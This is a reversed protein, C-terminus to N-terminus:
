SRHRRRLWRRPQPQVTTQHAAVACVGSWADKASSRLTALYTVAWTGRGIIAQAAFDTTEGSDLVSVLKQDAPTEGALDCAADLTRSRAAGSRGFETMLVQVRPDWIPATGVNSVRAVITHLSEGDPSTVVTVEIALSARRAFTRGRFFRFYALFASVVIAASSAIGGAVDLWGRNATLRAPSILGGRVALAIALAVIVLVLVPVAWIRTRDRWRM